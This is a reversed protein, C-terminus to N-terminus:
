SADFTLLVLPNNTCPNPLIDTARSNNTTNLEQNANSIITNLLHLIVNLFYTVFVLTLSASPAALSALRLVAEGENPLTMAFPSARPLRENLSHYDWQSQKVVNAIVILRPNGFRYRLGYCGSGLSGCGITM